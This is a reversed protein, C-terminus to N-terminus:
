ENAGTEVWKMIELLAMLERSGTGHLREDALIEDHSAHLLVKVAEPISPPAETRLARGLIMAHELLAKQRGSEAALVELHEVNAREVTANGLWATRWQQVLQEEVAPDFRYGGLVVDLIRLGRDRLHRFEESVAHGKLYRGCEDLIPVHEQMMRARVMQAIVQLATLNHRPIPGSSVAVRRAQPRATNEPQAGGPTQLRREVANNLRWLLRALWNRRLVVPAPTADYTDSVPDEPQLVMPVSDFTASFLEELTFKALYERWLDAAILGPLQNWAVHFPRGSVPDAQLGEGRAARRVAEASFGFRSGPVGAPSPAGDLRFLLRIEPVVENGDRTLGSVSQRKAQVAALRIREDDTADEQLRGFIPDDAAFEIGYAQTHLSFTNDVREGPELFHIGPGLVQKPGADSRTTVASATDIWVLGPGLRRSEGRREVTRGNRIFLAPGHSNQSHLMLRRWLRLRDQLRRVPLLFQAHFFLSAQILFLLVLIDILAAVAGRQWGVRFIADYLWVAALAGALIWTRAPLRQSWPLRNM